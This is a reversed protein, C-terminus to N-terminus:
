AADAVAVHARPWDSTAPWGFRRALRGLDAHIELWASAGDVPEAAAIREQMPALDAPQGPKLGGIFWDDWGRM